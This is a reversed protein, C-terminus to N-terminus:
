ANFPIFSCEFLYECLPSGCLSRGGEENWTIDTICYVYLLYKNILNIQLFNKFFHTYWVVQGTEQSVQICTLLCYNSSSMSCCGLELYSFSYTLPARKGGAFVWVVSSPAPSAASVSLIRFDLVLVPTESSQPQHSRSLIWPLVTTTSGSM